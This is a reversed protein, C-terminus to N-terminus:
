ETSAARKRPRGGKKGNARAAAAKADSTSGGAVRAFERAALRQGIAEVVLAPVSYDADLAEFHLINGKGIVEIDAIQEPEAERIERLRAIPVGVFFGNTLEIVIRHRHADYCASAARPSGTKFRRAM